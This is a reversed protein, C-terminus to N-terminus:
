YAGKIIVTTKERLVPVWVSSDKTQLWVGSREEPLIYGEYQQYESPGIISPSDVVKCNDIRNNALICSLLIEM